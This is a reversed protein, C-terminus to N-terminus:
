GDDEKRMHCSCGCKLLFLGQNDTYFGTCNECNTLCYSVCVPLTTEEKHHTQLVLENDASKNKCIM